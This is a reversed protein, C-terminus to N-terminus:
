KGPQGAEISPIIKQLLIIQALAMGHLKELKFKKPRDLVM